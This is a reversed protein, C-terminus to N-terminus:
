SKTPPLCHKNKYPLTLIKWPVRGAICCSGPPHDHASGVCAHNELYNCVHTVAPTQAGLFWQNLFNRTQFIGAWTAELGKRALWTELTDAELCICVELGKHGYVLPKIRLASNLHVGCDQFSTVYNYSPLCTWTQFCQARQPRHVNPHAPLMWKQLSTLSCFPPFSLFSLSPFLSLPSACTYLYKSCILFCPRTITRGKLNWRHM